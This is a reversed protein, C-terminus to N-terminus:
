AQYYHSAIDLYEVGIDKDSLLGLIGPVSAPSDFDILSGPGLLNVSYGESKLLDISKRYDDVVIGLVSFDGMYAVPVGLKQLFEDHESPSTSVLALQGM